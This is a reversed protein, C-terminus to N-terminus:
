SVLAVPPIGGPQWGAEPAVLPGCRQPHPHPHCLLCERSAGHPRISVQVQAYMHVYVVFVGLACFSFWPANVTKLLM